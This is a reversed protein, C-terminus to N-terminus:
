VLLNTRVLFDTIDERASLVVPLLEFIDSRTLHSSVLCLLDIDAGASNGLIRYSGFPIVRVNGSGKM